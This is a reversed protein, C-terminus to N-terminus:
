TGHARVGDEDRGEIPRAHQGGQRLDEGVVVGVDGVDVDM